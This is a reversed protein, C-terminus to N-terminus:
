SKMFAGLRESAAQLLGELLGTGATILVLGVEMVILIMMSNWAHHFITFVICGLVILMLAGLVISSLEMGIKLLLRLVGVLLIVPFPPANAIAQLATM